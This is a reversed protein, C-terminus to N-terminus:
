IRFCLLVGVRMDSGGAATLEIADGLHLNLSIERDGVNFGSDWRVYSFALQDVISKKQNFGAPPPNKERRSFQAGLNINERIEYSNDTLRRVKLEGSLRIQECYDNIRREMRTVTHKLGSFYPLQDIALRLVTSLEASKQNSKYPDEYTRFNKQCEIRRREDKNLINSVNLAVGFNLPSNFHEPFIYIHPDAAQIDTQDSDAAHLSITTLLILIILALRSFWKNKVRNM